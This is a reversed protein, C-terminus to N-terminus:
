SRMSGPWSPSSVDPPALGAASVFACGVEAEEVLFIMKLFLIAFGICYQLTFFYFIFFYTLDKLFFFM